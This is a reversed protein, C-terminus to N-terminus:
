HSQRLTPCNPAGSGPNGTGSPGQSENLSEVVSMLMLEKIFDEHALNVGGVRPAEDFGFDGGPAAHGFPPKHVPSAGSVLSPPPPSPDGASTPPSMRHAMPSSNMHRLAPQGVVAHGWRMPSQASVPTQPGGTPGEARQTEVRTRHVICRMNGPDSPSGVVGVGSIGDILQGYTGLGADKMLLPLSYEPYYRSWETALQAMKLGM